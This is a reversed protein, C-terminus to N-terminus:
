SSRGVSGGLAFRSWTRGVWQVVAPGGPGPAWLGPQAGAEEGPGLGVGEQTGASAAAGRCHGLEGLLLGTQGWSCHLLPVSLPLSCGM